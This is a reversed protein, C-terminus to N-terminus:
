KLKFSVPMNFNVRVKQGKQIGPTWRPMEKVVRLAETDLSKEVGRVVKADGISGDKEVVFSVIVMGQVGKEKATAPYKVNNAMYNIRAEEGGPFQPMTEVVMYVGNADKTGAPPPPPPPPPPAVGSKSTPPPPPPPPPVDSGEVIVAKEQKTISDTVLMVKGTSEAVTDNTTALDKNASQKCGIAYIMVICFALPLVVIAKLRAFRTNKKYFM